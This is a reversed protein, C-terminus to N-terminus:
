KSKSRQTYAFGFLAGIFLLLTSPTSVESVVELTLASIHYNTDGLSGRIFDLNLTGDTAVIDAIMAYGQTRSKVWVPDDTNGLLISEAFVDYDRPDSWRDAFLLQLRYSNGTIVDLNIAGPNIVDAWILTSMVDALNADDATASGFNLFANASRNFGTINAGPANAALPVNTFIADGITPGAGNADFNLAYAFDGSFDLDDASDIVLISASVVSSLLLGSAIVATQIFKVM